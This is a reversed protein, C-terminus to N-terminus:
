RWTFFDNLSNLVIERDNGLNNKYQIKYEMKPSNLLFKQIDEFTKISLSELFESLDSKKYNKTEYIEEGLYVKDVCRLILEFMYDKELNLFEQDDYLSAPPYRMIIGSNETIKINNNANEPIIL